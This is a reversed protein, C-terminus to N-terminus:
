STRRGKGRNGVGVPGTRLITVVNDVVRVVTSEKGRLRGGDLILDVSDGIQEHAEAATKASPRGSLNASTGTLWGGCRSILRLCGEHDPVRVGLDRRGQTLESPFLTKLPAVITLAGPWHAKALAQAEACLEVLTKAKATSSCLVPLPKSARGKTECLRRVAEGNFPNCGLGYVTDTPYVVLGGRRVIEAARAISDANIIRVNSALGLSRDEASATLKTPSPM